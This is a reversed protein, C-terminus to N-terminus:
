LARGWIREFPRINEESRSRDLVAFVIEDFYSAFGEGDLLRRWWSAVEAPDNGFIGCGYAGLVLARVGREAFIALALRMRELMAAKALEANEGKLLVQGYNVAPLTLVSAAAPEAALEFREDRFFVADPTYIAHHTYIMSGCRKNARYYEPHRLQAAYLGSSAALSEEQAMAGNLFGGGPNKASAFNLVGIQRSGAAYLDRVTKVASENAVRFDTRARLPKDVASAPRDKAAERAEPARDAASARPQERGAEGRADIRRAAEVALSGAQPGGVEAEDIEAKAEEAEEASSEDKGTEEFRAKAEEAEEAEDDAGSQECSIKGTELMESAYSNTGAIVAGSGGFRRLIEAGREPTILESSQESLRQAEAFEVTRGRYEYSGRRAIEVTEAAILRARDRRDAATERGARPRTNLGHQNNM